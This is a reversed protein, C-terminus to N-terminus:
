GSCTPHSEADVATTTTQHRSTPLLTPLKESSYAQQMCQFSFCQFPYSTLVTM